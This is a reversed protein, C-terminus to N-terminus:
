IELDYKKDNLYIEGSEIKERIEERTMESFDPNQGRGMTSRVNANSQSQEEQDEQFFFWWIGLGAIIIIITTILSYKLWKKQSTQKQERESIFLENNQSTEPQM